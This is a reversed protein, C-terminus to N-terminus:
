EWLVSGVLGSNMVVCEEGRLFGALHFLTQGINKQGFIQFICSFLVEYDNVRNGCARKQSWKGEDHHLKKGSKGPAWFVENPV